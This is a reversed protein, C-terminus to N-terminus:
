VGFINWKYDLTYRVYNGLKHIFKVPSYFYCFTDDRMEFNRHLYKVLNVYPQHLM